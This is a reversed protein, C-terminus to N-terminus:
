ECQESWTESFDGCERFKTTFRARFDGQGEVFTKAEITNRGARLYDRIDVNVRFHWARARECRGVYNAGEGQYINWPTYVNRYRICTGSRNEQACERRIFSRGVWLRAGSLDGNPGVYVLEDNVLIETWDDFWVDTLIFEDILDVNPITFEMVATYSDCVGRGPAWRRRQPKGITLSGDSNNFGALDDFTLNEIVQSVEQREYERSCYKTLKRTCNVRQRLNDRACEFRDNGHTTISRKITCTETEESQWGDCFQDISSTPPTIVPECSEYNNNLMTGLGEVSLPDDQVSLGYATTSDPEDWDPLTGFAGRVKEGTEDLEVEGANILQDHGLKSQPIKSTGAFGPVRDKTPDTSLITDLSGRKDTAFNTGEAKGDAPDDAVSISAWFLIGLLFLFRTM